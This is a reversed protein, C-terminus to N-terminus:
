AAEVLALIVVTLALVLLWIGTHGYMLSRVIMYVEFCIVLAFITMMM